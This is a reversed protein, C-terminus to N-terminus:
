TGVRRLRAAFAGDMGDRQPLIMLDGDPTLLQTPALGPERQFRANRALFRDIQESNEEPELSCTAFLLLGGPRVVAALADLFRAAQEALRELAAPTVRWRTDPNRAFTGTGLCPADLVVAEVPRVPPHLADAVLPIVRGSGARNLNEELRRIRRRHRDAAVVLRARRALILSKGGPAACADLITAGPPPDFFRCVLLQAPDQVLFGGAAFGPLDAPRRGRVAFGADFPSREWPLAAADLATTLQDASWRAPQLVLPPRANNWALLRETEALGFRTLWREVLWVPHSHREALALAPDHHGPEDAKAAAAEPGTQDALRRLAANVFGAVRRGGLRRAIGVSTQVAAHPPVRDLELLQFAGIRLVDLLDPRVRDLGRPVAPRIAADLRSRHRFVGAALEHALRRDEPELDRIARSLATDFPVGHRVDHLVRWAAFRPALGPTRSM